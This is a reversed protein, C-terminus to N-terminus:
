APSAPDLARPLRGCWGGHDCPQLALRGVTLLRGSPAEAALSPEPALAVALLLCACALAAVPILGCRSCISRMNTVFDVGAPCSLAVGSNNQILHREASNCRCRLSRTDGACTM